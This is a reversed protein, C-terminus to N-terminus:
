RELAKVAEMILAYNSSYVKMKYDSTFNEMGSPVKALFSTNTVATKPSKVGSTLYGSTSSSHHYGKPVVRLTAQMTDNFVVSNLTSNALISVFALDSPAVGTLTITSIMSKFAAVKIVATPLALTLASDNSLAYLKVQLPKSNM